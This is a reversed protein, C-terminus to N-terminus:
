AFDTQDTRFNPWFHKSHRIKDKASISRTILLGRTSEEQGLPVMKRGEFVEEESTVEALRKFWYKRGVDGSLPPGEKEVTWKCVVLTM